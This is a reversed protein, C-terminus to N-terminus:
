GSVDWIDMGAFVILVVRMAHIPGDHPIPANPMAHHLGTPRGFFPAPRSPAPDRAGGVREWGVGVWTACWLPM